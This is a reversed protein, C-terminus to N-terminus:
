VVRVQEELTRQKLESEHLAHQAQKMERVAEEMREQMAKAKALANNM